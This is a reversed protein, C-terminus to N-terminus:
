DSGLAAQSAATRERAIDWYAHMEAVIQFSRKRKAPDFIDVPEYSWPGLNPRLHISIALPVSLERVRGQLFVSEFRQDWKPILV